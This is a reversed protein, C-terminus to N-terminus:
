TLSAFSRVVLQILKLLAPFYTTCSIETQVHEHLSAPSRPEKRRKGGITKVVFGKELWLGARAARPWWLHRARMTRLCRTLHFLAQPGWAFTPWRQVCKGLATHHLDLEDLGLGLWTVNKILHATSSLQSLQNSFPNAQLIAYDLLGIRDVIFLLAHPGLALHKRM